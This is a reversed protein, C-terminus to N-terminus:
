RSDHSGKHQDWMLRPDFSQAAVMTVLVVGTFSYAAIGPYFALLGKLQVLAVLIAVVFVDIMSWKGIFEAIVYLRTRQRHGDHHRRSVSWVLYFMATIKAMPVVVSAIFIVAAVPISGIQVLLVVGGMITSVDTGGTYETVMIPYLNAPIYLLSATILLALTRQLSNTTRLHLASGCRPCFHQAVSTLKCCIHCAALDRDAATAGTSSM